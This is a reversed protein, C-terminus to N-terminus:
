AHNETLQLPEALAEKLRVFDQERRLFADVIQPDFHTGRGKLIM